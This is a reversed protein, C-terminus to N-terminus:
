VPHAIVMDRKSDSGSLECTYLTLQSSETREEIQLDTAKVKTKVSIVYEYREGDVDVIIKDGKKVKDFNYLPSSQITQGPTLRMSFRHAALVFNGGTAPSGSEPSRQIAGRELAAEENGEVPIIPVEVGISPIYLTDQKAPAATSQLKQTVGWQKTVGHYAPASASIVLYLGALMVFSALIQPTYRRM